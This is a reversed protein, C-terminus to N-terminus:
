GGISGNSLPWDLFAMGAQISTTFGGAFLLIVTWGLAFVCFWAFLPRYALSRRPFSVSM